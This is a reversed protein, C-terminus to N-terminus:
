ESDDHEFYDRFKSRLPMSLADTYPGLEYWLDRLLEEGELAKQLKDIQDNLERIRSQNSM